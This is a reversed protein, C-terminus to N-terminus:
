GRTLGLLTDAVINRQVESAGGYISAGRLNFCVASASWGEDAEDFPPTQGQEFAVFSIGLAGNAEMLLESAAQRVEVSKLKLVSSRPDARNDKALAALLRMQLTEVAQLGIEVRSLKARFSPSAILGNAEAARRTKALIRKTVGVRAINTRENSLLYKAVTWGQNEEGVRNEIPVRVDDLFVSNVEHRGDLTIIPSLSVGPSKMDILLFTIGAQKKPASPDTRVLFFGWDAWHGMGQWMKQGNVIYHDGERRATTSINALDSGAGPESFGQCWWDDLNALRPLLRQKQEDTGFAIIVPGLMAVNFSIPEPAGGQHLEDLFIYRRVADWGPGGYEKPWSPTAWSRTNLIRQWGVIDAKDLPRDGMVKARTEAPLHADIFARVDRRFAHEEPSFDLDM